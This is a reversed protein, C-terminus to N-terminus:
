DPQEHLGLRRMEGSPSFLYQVLWETEEDESTEYEDESHIEYPNDWAIDEGSERALIRAVEPAPIKPEVGGVAVFSVMTEFKKEYKVQFVGGQKPDLTLRGPFSSWDDLILMGKAEEGFLEESVRKLVEFSTPRRINLLM